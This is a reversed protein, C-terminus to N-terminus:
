SVGLCGASEDCLVFLIKVMRAALGIKGGSLWETSLGHRANLRVFLARWASHLMALRHATRISIPKGM